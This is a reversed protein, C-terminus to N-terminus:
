PFSTRNQLFSSPFAPCIRWSECSSPAHPLRRPRRKLLSRVGLAGASAGIVDISNVAWDFYLAALDNGKGWCGMVTNIWGWGIYLGAILADNFSCRLFESRCVAPGYVSFNAQRNAEFAIGEVSHSNTTNGMPPCDDCEWAAGQPGKGAFALVATLM